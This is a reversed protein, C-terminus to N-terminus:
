TAGGRREPRAFRLAAAPGAAERYYSATELIDIRAQARRHAPKM